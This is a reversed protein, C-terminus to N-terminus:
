KSGTKPFGDSSKVEEIQQNHRLNHLPIYLLWQYGNLIGFIPFPHDITVAKLPLETHEAFEQTRARRDHYRQLVETRGLQGLPQISQPAIAKGTREVLVRELFDVKGATTSQWDPDPDQSVAREVIAFLLDEALVLHEAIEGISWRGAAPTYAWQADDLSEVANLFAEQSERLLRVAKAREEATLCTEPTSDNMATKPTTM